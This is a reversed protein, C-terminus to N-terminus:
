FTARWTHEKFAALQQPFFFHFQIRLVVGVFLLIPGLIMTTGGVWRGPFWFDGGTQERGAIQSPSNKALTDENMISKLGHRTGQYLFIVCGSLSIVNRKVSLILYRLRTGDSIPRTSSRTRAKFPFHSLVPASPFRRNRIIQGGDHILVRAGFDILKM